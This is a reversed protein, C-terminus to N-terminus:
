KKLLLVLDDGVTVLDEEALDLVVEAVGFRVLGVAVGIDLDVLLVTNFGEVDILDLCIYVDAVGIEVKASTEDIYLDVEVDLLSEVNVVGFDEDDRFDLDSKLLDDTIAPLYM